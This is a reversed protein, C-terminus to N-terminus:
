RFLNLILADAPKTSWNLTLALLTDVKGIPM